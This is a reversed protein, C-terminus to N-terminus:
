DLEIHYQKIKNYLTKRDINLIRAAKTKNFNAQSLANLIVEREAEMSAKKLGFADMPENNHQSLTFTRIEEPLCELTIEDHPALLTCRKIVNKLERLNGHWPYNLIVDEVGRGFGEISKDLESNAEHLFHKAFVLIDDKRERLPPLNIKFENLRHYLDERFQGEEVAKILGENTAAIIRLDIRIPKNDGVRTIIREQLARLLKVQIDYTLNGIEDLFLTGGNALEFYGEKNNIASTFSGKVHGFLESSAIDKPIAGCDVPVFPKDKRKSQSHIARAVFEKGSGTEGEILVSMNTPAVMAAMEMIKKMKESEGSIFENGEFAPDVTKVKQKEPKSSLARNIIQLIEEPYIPKTVYDFAGSKILKVAQRVDAYGTIIVVQTNQNIEKIKKLMELGDFDPLRFDCLVLNYTEKKLKILANQGNQATDADFGKQKLFKELLSCIYTDDDIVLIKSM